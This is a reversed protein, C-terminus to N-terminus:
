CCDGGSKGHGCCSSQGETTGQGETAERVLLRQAVQMVTKAPQEKVQLAVNVAQIM